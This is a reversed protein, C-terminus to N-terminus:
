TKMTDNKKCKGIQYKLFMGTSVQRQQQNKGELSTVVVLGSALFMENCSTKM